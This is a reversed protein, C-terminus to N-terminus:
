VMSWSSVLNQTTPVYLLVHRLNRRWLVEVVQHKLGGWTKQHKLKVVALFLSTFAGKRLDQKPM